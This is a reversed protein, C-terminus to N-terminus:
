IYYLMMKSMNKNVFVHSLKYLMQELLNGSMLRINTNSRKRVSIKLYLNSTIGSIITKNQTYFSCCETKSIYLNFKFFISILIFHYHHSNDDFKVYRRSDLINILTPPFKKLSLKLIKVSIHDFAEYIDNPLTTRNKIYRRVIETNLFKMYIIDSSRIFEAYKCIYSKKRNLISYFTNSYKELLYKIVNKSIYYLKNSLIEHIILELKNKHTSNYVIGLLKDIIHDRNYSNLMKIIAVKDKIIRGVLNDIERNKGKFRYDSVDNILL